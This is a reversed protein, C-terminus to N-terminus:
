KRYDGKPGTKGDIKDRLFAATPRDLLESVIVDGTIIFITKPTVISRLNFNVDLLELDRDYHPNIALNRASMPSWNQMALRISYCARGLAATLNRDSRNPDYELVTIGALDTPLKLITGRPRVLFVNRRGLKGMFLGTEFIVNDRAVSTQDGRFKVIDDPALVFAAFDFSSLNAELSELTRDFAHLHKPELGNGRPRSRLRGPDRGRCETGRFLLWHVFTTKCEAYGM